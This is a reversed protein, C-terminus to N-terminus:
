PLRGSRQQAPRALAAALRHRCLVALRPCAGSCAPAGGAPVAPLFAHSPLELSGMRAKRNRGPFFHRASLCFLALDIRGWTPDGGDKGYPMHRDVKGPNDPPGDFRVADVVYGYLLAVLGHGVEHISVREMDM